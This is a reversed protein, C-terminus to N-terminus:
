IRLFRKKRLVFALCQWCLAIYIILLHPHSALSIIIYFMNQQNYYWCHRNTAESALRHSGPGGCGGVSFSCVIECRRHVLKNIIKALLIITQMQVLWHHYLAAEMQRLANFRSAQLIHNSRPWSWRNLLVGPPHLFRTRSWASAAWLSAGKLNRTTPLYSSHRNSPAYPNFVRVDFFAKEYPSGSFGNAVIDLVTRSIRHPVM